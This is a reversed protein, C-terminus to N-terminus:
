DNQGLILLRKPCDDIFATTGHGEFGDGKINLKIEKPKESFLLCSSTEYANAMYIEKKDKTSNIFEEIEKKKEELIDSRYFDWVAKKDNWNFGVKLCLASDSLTYFGDDVVKECRVDEFHLILKAGSDNENKTIELRM